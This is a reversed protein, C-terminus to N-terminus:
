TVLGGGEGELFEKLSLGKPWFEIHDYDPHQWRGGWKWGIDEAIKGVQTYLPDDGRTLYVGDRFLSFDLAYGFQHWGVKVRSLGKALMEAQRESTRLTESIHHEIGEALLRRQLEQALPQVQPNLLALDSLIQSMWALYLDRFPTTL